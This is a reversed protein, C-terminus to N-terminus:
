FFEQTHGLFDREKKQRSSSFKVPNKKVGKLEEGKGPRRHSVSYMQGEKIEKLEV